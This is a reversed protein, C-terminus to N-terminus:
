YYSGLDNYTELERTPDCPTVSALRAEDEDPGGNLDLDEEAMRCATEHALLAALAAHAGRAAALLRAAERAQRVRHVDDLDGMSPPFIAEVSKYRADDQEVQAAHRRYDESALDDVERQWSAALPTGIASASAAQLATSLDTPVIHRAEPPDAAEAAIALYLSDAPTSARTPWREEDSPGVWEDDWEGDTDDYVPTAPEPDDWEDDSDDYVPTAPEPISWTHEPPTSSPTCPPSPPPSSSAIHAPPATSGGRALPGRGGTHYPTPPSLPPALPPPATGNGPLTGTYKGSSYIYARASSGYPADVIRRVEDVASEMVQTSREADVVGASTLEKIVHAACASHSGAEGAKVLKARLEDHDQAPQRNPAANRSAPTVSVSAAAACVQQLRGASAAWDAPPASFRVGATKFVAAMDVVMLGADASSAGAFFDDVPPGGKARVLLAALEAMSKGGAAGAIEALLQGDDSTVASTPCLAARWPPTEDWAVRPPPAGAGSGDRPPVGDALNVQKELEDALRAVVEEMEAAPLAAIGPQTALRARAQKIAEARRRQAADGVGLAAALIAAAGASLTSGGLGGTTGGGGSPPAPAPPPATAPPPNAAPIDAATKRIIGGAEAGGVAVGFGQLEAVSRAAAVLAPGPISETLRGFTAQWERAALRAAKLTDGDGATEAAIAAAMAVAAPRALEAEGAASAAFAALQGCPIGGSLKLGFADMAAIAVARVPGASLIADEDLNEDRADEASPIGAAAPIPPPRAAQGEWPRWDLNAMAVAQEVTKSLKAGNAVSVLIHTLETSSPDLTFVTELGGVRIHTAHAGAGADTSIIGDIVAEVNRNKLAAATVETAGALTGHVSLSVKSGSKDLEVDVAGVLYTPPSGGFKVLSGKLAGRVAGVDGSWYAPIADVPETGEPLVTRALRRTCAHLAELIDHM